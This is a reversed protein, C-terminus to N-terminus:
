VCATMAFIGFWPALDVESAGHAAWASPLNGVGATPLYGLLPQYWEPNSQTDGYISLPTTVVDIGTEQLALLVFYTIDQPTKVAYRNVLQWNKGKILVITIYGKDLLLVARTTGGIAGMDQVQQAFVANSHLHKIRSARYQLALYDAANSDTYFVSVPGGAHRYFDAVQGRVPQGISRSCIQPLEAIDFFDAPVVVSGGWGWSVKVSNYSSTQLWEHQAIISQLQEKTESPALPLDFQYQVAVVCRAMGAHFVAAWFGTPLLRWVLDYSAVKSLQWNEFEAKSKLRATQTLTTAM